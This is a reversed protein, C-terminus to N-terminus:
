CPTAPGCTSASLTDALEVVREEDARGYVIARRGDELLEKLTVVEGSDEGQRALVVNLSENLM